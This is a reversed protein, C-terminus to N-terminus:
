RAMVAIEPECDHGASVWILRSPDLEREGPSMRYATLYGSRAVSFDLCAKTPSTLEPLGNMWYHGFFVPKEDDYPVLATEPLLEDPIQAATMEDVLAAKRYTDAQGDWWRIRTNRREHGDKDFFTVGEPLAVEPGKLIVEAAEYAASGKQNVAHIGEPTLANRSDVWPALAAMHHPHWCAHVFRCDGDDAWLPLTRFWAVLERHLDSDEGVADLFAQHQHRNKSGRIRYHRGPREPNETGWGIANFEHNGMVISGSGDDVMRRVIDIVELQEDGRDILDGVFNAHCDSSRWVGGTCVFGAKALLRKLADAHGHIDGINLKDM